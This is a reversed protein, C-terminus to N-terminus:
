GTAQDPSLAVAAPVPAAPAEAREAEAALVAKLAAIATELQSDGPERTTLTQVALGPALVARVLGNGYHSAALRILEYALGAILPILVVRSIVRLLLPPQGLAAFVVFSVLVVVILFTTGCRPHVTTFRRVSEVELPAGAEHANVAKHEAGHYAFVRRIEPLLGIGGIYGLILGLRIVKEVLNSVLSSSIFRDLVGMILVPTVFFLGTAAALAFIMTGWLVGTPMAPQVPTSGDKPTDESELAVNASFLLTRMGLVLTDWLTVSGRVVPLRSWRGTYISGRLEESHVVIRGSPSRVAVVMDRPGRMMVGEIVAQGGYLPRRM